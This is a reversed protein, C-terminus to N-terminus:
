YPYDTKIGFVKKEKCYMVNISFIILLIVRKM